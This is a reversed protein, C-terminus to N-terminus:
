LLVPDVWRARAGRRDLRDGAAPARGGAGRGRAGWVGSRLRFLHRHRGPARRVVLTGARRRVCPRHRCAGGTWLPRRRRAAGGRRHRGVRIFSEGHLRHGRGAETGQRHRQPELMPCAGPQFFAGTRGWRDIRRAFFGIFNAGGRTKRNRRATTGLRCANAMVLRVTTGQRRRNRPGMVLLATLARPMIPRHCAPM